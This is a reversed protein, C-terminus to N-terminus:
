RVDPTRLPLFGRQTLISIAPVLFGKFFHAFAPSHYAYYAARRLHVAPAAGHRESSPM